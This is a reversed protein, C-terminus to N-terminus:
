NSGSSIPILDVSVEPLDERDLEFVLREGPLPARRATVEYLIETPKRERELVQIAEPSRVSNVRFEKKDRSYIRLNAPKKQGDGSVALPLTSPRFRIDGPVEWFIEIGPPPFSAPERTKLSIVRHHRGPGDPPVLHVTVENEATGYGISQYVKRMAGVELHYEGREASVPVLEVPSNWSPFFQTVIVKRIEEEGPRVTRFDIKEPLLRWRPLIEGTLHFTPTVNTPDNTRLRVWHDVRGFCNRFDGQLILTTSAGPALAQSSLNPTAQSIEEISIEMPRTGLNKIEFERSVRQVEDAFLTGIHHNYSSTSFIPAQEQVEGYLEVEFVEEGPRDTTIKLLGQPKSAQEGQVMLCLEATASSVGAKWDVQFSPDVKTDLIRFPTRSRSSIMVRNGPKTIHGLSDDGGTFYRSRFVRVGRPRVTLDGEVIWSVGIALRPTVPDSTTLMLNAKELNSTKSGSRITARYTFVTKRFGDKESVQPQSVLAVSVLPHDSTASLIQWPEGTDSLIRNSTVKFDWTRSSPIVILMRRTESIPEIQWHPILFGAMGFELVPQNPDNSYVSIRIQEKGQRNRSQLSADLTATEGPPIERSSIEAQTCGCSTKIDRILLPQDGANQLTFRHDVTKHDEVYLVGFNHVKEDVTIVPAASCPNLSIPTILFLLGVIWMVRFLTRGTMGKEFGDKM